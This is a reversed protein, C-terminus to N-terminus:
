VVAFVLSPPNHAAMSNQKGTPIAQISANLFAEVTDRTLQEDGGLNSQLLRTDLAAYRYFCSANFTTTGMMDSGATDGPRLDDVATYFDFEMAVRHTSIAHAVQCAADVNWEPRFDLVDIRGPM